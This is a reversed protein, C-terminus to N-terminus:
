AKYLKQYAQLDTKLCNPGHDVITLQVLLITHFHHKSSATIPEPYSYSWNTYNYNQNQGAVYAPDIYADTWKVNENWNAFIHQIQM